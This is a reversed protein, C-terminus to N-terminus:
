LRLVFQREPVKVRAAKLPPGFVSVYGLRFEHIWAPVCTDVGSSVRDLMLVCVM